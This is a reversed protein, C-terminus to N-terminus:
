RKPKFAEGLLADGGREAAQQMAGTVILPLIFSAFVLLTARAVSQATTFLPAGSDGSGFGRVPIVGTQLWPAYGARREIVSHHM